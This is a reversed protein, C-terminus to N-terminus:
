YPRTPLDPLKDDFNLKIEDLLKHYDIIFEPKRIFFNILYELLRALEFYRLKQLDISRLFMISLVTCSIVRIKKKIEFNIFKINHQSKYNNILEQEVQNFEKQHEPKTNSEKTFSRFFTRDRFNLKNFIAKHFHPPIQPLTKIKTIINIVQQINTPDPLLENALKQTDEISSEFNRIDRHHQLENQLNKDFSSSWTNNKDSQQLQIEAQNQNSDSSPQLNSQSNDIEMDNNSTHNKTVLSSQNISLINKPKSSEDLDHVTHDDFFFRSQSISPITSAEMSM